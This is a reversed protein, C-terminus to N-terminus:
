TLGTQIAAGNFVLDRWDGNIYSKPWLVFSSNTLLKWLCGRRDWVQSKGLILGLIEVWEFGRVVGWELIRLSKTKFCLEILVFCKLLRMRPKTRPKTNILLFVPSAIVYFDQFRSTEEWRELKWCMQFSYTDWGQFNSLFFYSLFCETRHLEM